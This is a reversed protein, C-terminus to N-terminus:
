PAVRDCADFDLDLGPLTRDTKTDAMNWPDQRRDYGVGRAHCRSKPKGAEVRATWEPGCGTQARRRGGTGAARGDGTRGDVYAVRTAV